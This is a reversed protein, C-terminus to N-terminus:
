SQGDAERAHAYAIRLCGELAELRPRQEATCRSLAVDTVTLLHRYMKTDTSARHWMAMGRPFRTTALCAM